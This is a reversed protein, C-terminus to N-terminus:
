VTSVGGHVSPLGQRASSCVDAPLPSAADWPTPPGSAGSLLVAAESCSRTAGGCVAAPLFASTRGAGMQSHILSLIRATSRKRGGM